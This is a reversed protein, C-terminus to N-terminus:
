NIAGFLLRAENAGEWRGTRRNGLALDGGGEGDKCEDGRNVVIGGQRGSWTLM